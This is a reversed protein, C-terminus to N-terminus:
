ITKRIIGVYVACALALLATGAGVLAFAGILPDNSKRKGSDSASNNENEEGLVIGSITSDDLTGADSADDMESPTVTLTPTKGGTTTPTNTSSAPLPTPTHTNTPTHTPTHSPTTTPTNTVSPTPTNTSTPARPSLALFTSAQVSDKCADSTNLCARFYLKKAEDLMLNKIRCMLSGQWSGDSGIEVQPMDVWASTDDLWRNTQVQFTQAENLLTGNAPGIRCKLYYKAGAVGGSGFGQVTFSDGIIPNTVDVSLPIFSEASFVSRPFHFFLFLVVVGVITPIRASM